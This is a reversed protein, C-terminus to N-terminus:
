AHRLVDPRISELPTSEPLSPRGLVAGTWPQESLARGALARGDDREVELLAVSGSGCAIIWGCARDIPSVLPGIVEGPVGLRRFTRPLLACHWITLRKQHLFTFAGPYPRTVARVLNYVEESHRSWDILGDSPRRGPLPAEETVPQPRGPRHGAFLSPLARLIMETNSAAVRRYISHCTDYQGIPIPTQDIMDGSDIGPSLWFLTNGTRPMGHILTWNVPARGRGAPLLSAHAGIMGIRATRLAEPTLVQSWGIVFALDLNLSTLLEISAPDNINDVEHLPLRYGACLRRYDAAGSRRSASAPPLTLAAVIPIRRELLQRLAAVGEFHFGIWGIRM